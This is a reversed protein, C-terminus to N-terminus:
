RVGPRTLSVGRSMRLETKIEGLMVKIENLEAMTKDREVEQKECHTGFSRSLTDTREITKVATAFAGVVALVVVWPIVRGIGSDTKRRSYPDVM